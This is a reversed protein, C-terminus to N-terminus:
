SVRFLLLHLSPSIFHLRKSMEATSDNMIAEDTNGLLLYRLLPIVKPHTLATYTHTPM